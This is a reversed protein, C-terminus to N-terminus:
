CRLSSWPLTIRTAMKWTNAGDIRAAEHIEPNIAVLGALVIVVGFGLTNWVSFAMVCVLAVSPGAFMAPIDVRQTRDPPAM